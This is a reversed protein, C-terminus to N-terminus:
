QVVYPTQIITPFGTASTSDTASRSARRMKVTSGPVTHQETDPPAPAPTGRRPRGAGSAANWAAAGARCATRGRRLRVTAANVACVAAVALLGLLVVAARKM